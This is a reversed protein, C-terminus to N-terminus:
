PVFLFYRSFRKIWKILETKCADLFM